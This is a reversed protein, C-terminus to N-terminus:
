TGWSERSAATSGCWRGSVTTKEVSWQYLDAYSRLQLGHFHNVEAMFQHLNSHQMRDQDPKWLCLNQM